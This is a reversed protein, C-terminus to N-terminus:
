RHCKLILKENKQGVNPVNVIIIRLTGQKKLLKEKGPPVLCFGCGAAGLLVVNWVVTLEWAVVVVIVELWFVLLFVENTVDLAWIESSLRHAVRTLRKNLVVLLSM